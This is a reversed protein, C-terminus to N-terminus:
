AASLSKNASASEALKMSGRAQYQARRGDDAPLNSVAMLAGLLTARDWVPVGTKKDVLGALSLLGAAEYMAHDRAAKAAKAEATRDANLMKNLKSRATYAKELSQEAKIIVLLKKDQEPTRNELKSLAVLLQQAQTPYKMAEITKIRNEIWETQKM